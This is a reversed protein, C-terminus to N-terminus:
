WQSIGGLDHVNTFGNSELLRKAMASRGGSQCYVVIQEVKNGLEGARGVLEQVPINIAGDIHGGGFEEPSRVDLLTAGQAVLARADGGSVRVASFRLYLVAAIIIVLVVLILKSFM